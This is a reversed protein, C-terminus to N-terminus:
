EERRKLLYCSIGIVAMASVIAVFIAPMPKSNDGTSIDINASNEVSADSQIESEEGNDKNYDDELTIDSDTFEDDTDEFVIEESSDSGTNESTYNIYENTSNSSTNDTDSKDYDSSTTGNNSSSSIEESSTSEDDSSTSEIASSSFNDNSETDNSTFDDESSDEPSVYPIWAGIVKGNEDIRELKLIEGDEFETEESVWEITFDDFYISNKGETFISLYKEYVTMLYSVKIWEGEPLEGVTLMHYNEDDNAWAYGMARTQAIEIDAEPMRGEDVKVAFSILYKQNPILAEMSGDFLVFGKKLNKEGIRHISNPKSIANKNSNSSNTTDYIEVDLDYGLSVGTHNYTDDFNQVQKLKAWKAYIKKNYYFADDYFDSAYWNDECWGLFKYGERTPEKITFTENELGTLYEANEGDNHDVNLVIHGDPVAVETIEIDDIYIDSKNNDDGKIYFALFNEEESFLDTYLYYTAQKWEDETSLVFAGGFVQTGTYLSKGSTMAEFIALNQTYNRYAFKIRYLTHNKVTINNRDETVLLRRAGYSGIDWYKLSGTPSYAYETSIGTQVGSSVKYISAYEDGNFDIYHSGSPVWKAYLTLNASFCKKNFYETLEKDTYWGAFVSNAKTPPAPLIIPENALGSIDGVSSGGNTEFKVTYSAADGIEKIEIDDIYIYVDTGMGTDSYSYFGLSLFKCESGSFDTFTEATNLDVTKQLWVNKKTNVTALKEIRGIEDRYKSSVPTRESSSFFALDVSCETIGKLMYKLKVEYQTAAKLEIAKADGSSLLAFAGNKANSVDASYGYRLSYKGSYSNGKKTNLLIGNESTQPYGFSYEEFDVTDSLSAANAGIIFFLSFIISLVILYSIYKLCVYKQLKM